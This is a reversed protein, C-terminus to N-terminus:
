GNKPLINQFQKRHLLMFVRVYGAEGAVATALLTKGTGSPGSVLCTQLPVAPCAGRADRLYQVVGRLEAKAGTRGGVGRFTVDPTQIQLFLLLHPRGPSGLVSESVM